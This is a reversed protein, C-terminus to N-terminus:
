GGLADFFVIEAEGLAKKVSEADCDFEYIALYRFKAGDTMQADSRRYRRCGTIPTKEIVEPAHIEDYWRNFEEDSGETCNSFVIAKNM